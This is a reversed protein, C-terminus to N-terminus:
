VSVCVCLFVVIKRLSMPVYLVLLFWGVDQVCGDRGLGQGGGM